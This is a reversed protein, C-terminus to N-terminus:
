RRTERDGVMWQMRSPAPYDFGGKPQLATARVIGRIQLKGLLKARFEPGEVAGEGSVGTRQPERDMQDLLFISPLAARLM